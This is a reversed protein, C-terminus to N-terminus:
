YGGAGGGAADCIGNRWSGGERVCRQEDASTMQSKGEREPPATACAGTIGLLVVALLDSVVRARRPYAM